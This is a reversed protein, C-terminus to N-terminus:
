SSSVCISEIIDEFEASKHYVDGNEFNTICFRRDQGGTVVINRTDHFAMSIIGSDHFHKGMVTRKQSNSSVQWIKMSEDDSISIV